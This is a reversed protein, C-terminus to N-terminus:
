SKLNQVQSLLPFLTFFTSYKLIVRMTEIQAPTFMSMPLAPRPTPAPSLQYFAALEEPPLQHIPPAINGAQAQAEM